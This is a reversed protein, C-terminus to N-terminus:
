LLGTFATANLGCPVRTAVALPLRNWPPPPEVCTNSATAPTGCALSSWSPATTATANLESPVRTAMALLGDTRKKSAQTIQRGIAVTRRRRGQRCAAWESFM